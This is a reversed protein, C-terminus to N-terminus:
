DNTLVGRVSRMEERFANKLLEGAEVRARVRSALMVHTLKEGPDSGEVTPPDAENELIDSALAELEAATHVEALRRVEKAIM